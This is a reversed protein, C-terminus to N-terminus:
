TVQIGPLPNGEEDFQTEIYANIQKEADGIFKVFEWGTLADEESPDSWILRALIRASETFSPPFKIELEAQAREDISTELPIEKRVRMRLGGAGFEESFLPLMSESGDRETLRVNVPLEVRFRVSKRRSRGFLDTFRLGTVEESREQIGPLPNGEEDFQTEIYANIQKEADGIFKVFEWGTLVDEESPDSWILRALVRAREAFSPPFKIELETQSREDTLKELPTAKQIRMRLGGSGFEESFLPLMRESGDQDTLRVNVPLEARFRVSKRRSRGFLDMFRM